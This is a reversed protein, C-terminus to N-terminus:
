FGKTNTSLNINTIDAMTVFVDKATCTPYVIIYSM